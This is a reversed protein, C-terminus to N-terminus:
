TDNKTEHSRLVIYARVLVIFSVAGSYMLIRAVILSLHGRPAPHIFLCLIEALLTMVAYWCMALLLCRRFPRPGFPPQNCFSIIFITLWPIFLVGMVIWSPLHPFLRGYFGWQGMAGILLGYSAINLISMM